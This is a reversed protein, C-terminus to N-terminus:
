RLFGSTKRLSQLLTYLLVATLLRNHVIDFGHNVYITNYRRKRPGSYWDHVSTKQVTIRYVFHKTCMFTHRQKQVVMKIPQLVGGSQNM